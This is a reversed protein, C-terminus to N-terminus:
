DYCQRFEAKKASLTMTGTWSSNTTPFKTVLISFDMEETQSLDLIDQLWTPNTTNPWWNKWDAENNGVRGDYKVNYVSDTTGLGMDNQIVGMYLRTNGTNRVTPRGDGPSFVLNGSIGQKTNLKVNGYNVSSFDVEFSTTPLYTFHNDLTGSLGAKDQAMVSILYDGAPDEWTLDKNVCYVYATEKMLEGDANCIEDYTYTIPSTNFTPLDNNNTRITNCFLNYGDTKSLKTLANEDEVPLGCGSLGYDPVSVTGGGILDPQALDEPHFAITAPYYIDVYVGDIDANYLSDADTVIACISYKMDGAPSGWIGSADFQANAATSDDTGLLSAYPADMEWKAKVIPASGNGPDRNLSTNVNSTVAFAIPTTVFVMAFVTLAAFVKFTKKM